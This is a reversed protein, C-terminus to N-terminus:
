EPLSGIVNEVLFGMDRMDEDSMIEGANVRVNGQNDKIEGELVEIEGSIIKDQIEYIRDAIEQSVIDTNIPSIQPCGKDQGYLIYEGWVEGTQAYKEFVDKFLPGWNWVMSSMVADPAYEKMDFSYGTCYAGAAACTQPIAPSDANVGMVKIGTAILSNACETEAAPDYWSNAWVVQVTADTNIYKAGLAFANISRIVSSEPQAASFGLRSGAGMEESQLAALCGMLFMCQYDRVGYGITNEGVSGNFQLFLIDPHNPAIMDIMDRYGSSSGIIVNCGEQILQEVMNKADSGEEPIEEAFILQDESMNLEKMAYVIGQYQAICWGSGDKTKTTIAGIKLRGVGDEESERDDKEM